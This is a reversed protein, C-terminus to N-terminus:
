PSHSTACASHIRAENHHSTPQPQPLARKCYHAAQPDGCGLRRPHLVSHDPCDAHLILYLYRYELLRDLLSFSSLSSSGLLLAIGFRSPIPIRRSSSSRAWLTLTSWNGQRVGGFAGSPLGVCSFGSPRTTACRVGCWCGLQPRRECGSAGYWQQVMRHRQKRNSGWRRPSGFLM